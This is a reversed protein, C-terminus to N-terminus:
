ETEPSGDPVGPAGSSLSDPANTHSAGTADSSGTWRGVETAAASPLRVAGSGTAEGRGIKAVHSGSAAVIVVDAQIADEFREVCVSSCFPLGTESMLLSADSWGYDPTGCQACKRGRYTDSSVFHTM